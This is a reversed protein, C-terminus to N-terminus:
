TNFEQRLAGISELRYAGIEKRRIYRLYAEQLRRFYMPVDSKSVRVCTTQIPLEHKWLRKLAKYGQYFETPLVLYQQTNHICFASIAYSNMGQQAARLCIDAGYFHFHPILESFKLGSSKRMILIIEDLTQIRVPQPLPEGIVGRGCSYLHGWGRHDVTKGYPGVVGWAPDNIELWHLADGLQQLWTNPLFIDQHAFIILDNTSKEIADNYAKAASGFGKQVLVQHPHSGQFCPSALFNSQFVREDNVAVAFTIPAIREM